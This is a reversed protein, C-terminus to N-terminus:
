PEEFFFVWFMKKGKREMWQPRRRESHGGSFLFFFFSYLFNRERPKYCPLGFV